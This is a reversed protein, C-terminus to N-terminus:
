LNPNAPNKTVSKPRMMENDEHDIIHCHWVYGHGGDPNFPYYAPSPSAPNAPDYDTPTYRVAIRTVQGPFMIVTDKWGAEQPLPPIAAGLLIPVPNGGVISGTGYPQPPGYTPMFVGAPYTIGTSSDTGGPFLAAYAANYAKLNLNQRNILQFQVLHLHIPHADATLNIIDWEEIEGENPLESYYTTVTNTTIPTFGRVTPLVGYPNTGMYKTNNVLVELPGGAGIVENLTLIRTKNPTVVLAGTNTNVLRIISKNQRPSQLLAPNYSQDLGGTLATGVRFQMIKGTTAGNVPGGGPYPTRATNRVELTLDPHAAFDIIVDYREGPMMVLKNNVKANPDIMVPADLLGGDTGIVWIAPGKAGSAKNILFLEYARANSGNLLRFRYRRPEVNLFPWTKGNVVIADGIFEPNWFPHVMPNPPPGNLGDASGDPFFLQGNTDFQKDQIAIEIEPKITRINAPNSNDVVTGGNTGGPLDDREDLSDRLFFFGALGAYVNLRTVGLAHDHFWLTTGEQTNPYNYINSVFAHGRPLLANVEAGPTWWADPGGDIQPPVEGGHLHAVTPVPAGTHPLMSMGTGHPDAWHLTQDVTLKSYLTSTLNNLYTVNTPIGRTAEITVAPYNVSGNINYAWLSTLGAAPGVVIGGALPTGTSLVQQIHNEMSVTLPNLPDAGNIRAGAFHPLPDVFPPIRNGALPTQPVQVSGYAPHVWNLNGWALAGAAMGAIKLFTRRNMRFMDNCDVGDGSTVDNNTEKNKM